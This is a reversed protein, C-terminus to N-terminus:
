ECYVIHINGNVDMVADFPFSAADSAVTTLSFWSSYPKDSYTFKIESGSTQFVAFIRGAYEGSPIKFLKKHPSFSIGDAATTITLKKQM